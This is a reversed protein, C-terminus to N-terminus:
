TEHRAAVAIGHIGRAAYAPLGWSRFAEVTAKARAARCEFGPATSLPREQRYRARSAHEDARGTKSRGGAAGHQTSVQPRIRATAAAFGTERETFYGLTGPCRVRFSSRLVPRHAWLRMMGHSCGPHRLQPSKCPLIFATGLNKLRAFDIAQWSALIGSHSKEAFARSLFDLFRHSRTLPISTLPFRTFRSPSIDHLRDPFQGHSM